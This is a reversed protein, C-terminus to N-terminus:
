VKEGTCRNLKLYQGDTVTVYATGEFNDNGVIDADPASSNTVEWYGPIDSTATLKYEGAEIDTGVRYTGEGIVSEAAEEAEELAAEYAESESSASDFASILARQASDVEYQKAEDDNMVAVAEDYANSLKTGTDLTLGELTTAEVEAITEELGSKDVEEAEESEQVAADDTTDQAQPASSCGVLALTGVLAAVIMQRRM